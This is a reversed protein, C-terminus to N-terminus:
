VKQTNNFVLAAAGLSGAANGLQAAVIETHGGCDPMMYGVASKQILDIYFQGAASIGGGIVVKQPAFVNIFSAIGHGLYATHEHLAQTAPAEGAKFKAVIHRGDIAALAMGSLEAYRKILANTSAYHELCGRGGCNCAEGQHEVVIHGLETGRNKYGGYLAGNAIIAGGIGTGITLCIVDTCGKAAGYHLEAYGMVNADNEVLVPLDFIKAYHGAVDIDIWGDLNDAGGLVIGEDVIGPTGIGIGAVTLGKTKAQALITEIIKEITRLIDAKKAQTGIPLSDNFLLEGAESVLAAKVFTGGLDVGVAYRTSNSM